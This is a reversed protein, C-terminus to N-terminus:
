VVALADSPVTAQVYSTEYEQFQRRRASMRELKSGLDYGVAGGGLRAVYRIEGSFDTLREDILPIGDIVPTYTALAQGIFEAMLDHLRLSESLESASGGTVEPHWIAVRDGPAAASEEDWAFGEPLEVPGGYVIGSPTTRFRDRGCKAIRMNAVEGRFLRGAVREHIALELIASMWSGERDVIGPGPRTEADSTYIIPGLADARGRDERNLTASHVQLFVGPSTQSISSIM